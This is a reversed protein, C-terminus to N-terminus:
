RHGPSLIRRLPTILITTSKLLPKVDHVYRQQSRHWGQLLPVPVFIVIAKRGHGVEIQLLGPTLAFGGLTWRRESFISTYTRCHRHWDGHGVGIIVMEEHKPRGIRDM